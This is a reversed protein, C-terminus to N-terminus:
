IVATFAIFANHGSRDVESLRRDSHAPTRAPLCDRALAPKRFFGPPETPLGPPGTVMALRKSSRQHAAACAAVGPPVATQNLEFRGSLVFRANSSEPSKKM